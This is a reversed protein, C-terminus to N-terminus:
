DFHTDLVLGGHFNLEYVLEDKNFILERGIFWSFDGNAEMVYTYDGESYFPKGRFPYDITPDMLAKKLFKSSFKEEIIVRGSYNMAWVPNLQNWIAEEGTFLHTGLYSDIYKYKGSNFELDYSHPRSSDVKGFGSAYTNKKAEILFVILAEYNM